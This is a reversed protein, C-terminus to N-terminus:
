REDIVKDLKSEIRDLRDIVVVNLETRTIYNSKILTLETNLAAIQQERLATREAGRRDLAQVQADLRVYSVVVTTM